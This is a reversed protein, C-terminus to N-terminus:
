ACSAQRKSAAVVSFFLDLDPPQFYGNKPPKKKKGFNLSRKRRVPPPCTPHAPIRCDVRTPTTCGMNYDDDVTMTDGDDYNDM